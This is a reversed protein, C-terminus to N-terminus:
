SLKEYKIEPIGDVRRMVLIQANAFGPQRRAFDQTVMIQRRTPHEDVWVVVINQNKAVREMHFTGPPLDKFPHSLYWGFPLRFCSPFGLMGASKRIRYEVGIYGVVLGILLALFTIM